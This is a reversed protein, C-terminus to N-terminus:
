VDTHNPYDVKLKNYAVTYLSTSLDSVPVGFYPIVKLTSRDANRDAESAWVKAQFQIEYTGSSPRLLDVPETGISIYTNSVSLGSSLAISDNNIIGM